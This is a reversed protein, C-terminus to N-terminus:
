KIRRVRISRNLENIKMIYNGLPGRKITVSFVKDKNPIRVVASDGSLQRWVQGNALEATIDGVPNVRFEVVKATLRAKDNKERVAKKTSALAEAGFLDEESAEDAAIMPAGAADAAASEEATERRIRTAKIDRAANELCDLRADAEDVDLCAIAADAARDKASQAFASGCLAATSLIMGAILISAPRNM